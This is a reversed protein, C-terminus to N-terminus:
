DSGPEREHDDCPRTPITKHLVCWLVYGTRLTSARGTSYRCTACTM